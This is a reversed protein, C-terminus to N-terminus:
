QSCAYCYRIRHDIDATQASPELYSLERLQPSLYAGVQYQGGAEVKLTGDSSEVETEFEDYTADGLRSAWVYVTQDSLQAGNEDNIVGTITTKPPRSPSTRHSPPDLFRLSRPQAPLVCRSQVHHIRIPSSTTAWVGTEQGLDPYLYWRNRHLSRGM